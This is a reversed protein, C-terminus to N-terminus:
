VAAIMSLVELPISKDNVPLFPLNILMQNKHLCYPQCIEISWRKAYLKILANGAIDKRSSAICWDDKM